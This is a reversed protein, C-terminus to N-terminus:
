TSSRHSSPRRFLSGQEEDDEAAGAQEPVRHRAGNKRTKPPSVTIRPYNQLRAAIRERWEADARLEDESPSMAIIGLLV